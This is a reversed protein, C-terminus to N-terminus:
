RTALQDGDVGHQGRRDRQEAHYAAASVGSGDCRPQCSGTQTTPGRRGAARGAPPRAGATARRPRTPPARRRARDAHGAADDRVVGARRRGHHQAENEVHDADVHGAASPASRRAPRPRRRPPREDQRGAARGTSTPTPRRPARRRSAARACSGPAAPTRPRLRRAPWRAPPRGLLPQADGALQVVDDRVAHAQDRDLGVIALWTASAWGCSIRSASRTMAVVLRSASPSIRRASPTSRASASSAGSARAPRGAPAPRAPGASRRPRRRGPRRRPARRQRGSPRRQRHEPDDLLCQGIHDLVGRAVRHRTSTATRDPSTRTSTVSSPGGSADAGHGPPRAPGSRCAPVPRPRRRRARAGTGSGLAARTIAVVQPVPM